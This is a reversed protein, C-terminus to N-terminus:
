ENNLPNDYFVSVETFYTDLKTPVETEIGVILWLKGDADTTGTIKENRNDVTFVNDEYATKGIEISGLYALDAGDSGLNGKDFSTTYGIYGLEAEDPTLTSVPETTVAGAKVYIKKADVVNSDSEVDFAVNMNIDLDYSVNPELNEIHVKMYMFLEGNLSRGTLRMAMDNYSGGAFTNPLTDHAVELGYKAQESEPYNSFEGVWEGDGNEFSFASFFDHRSTQPELDNDMCSFLLSSLGFVLFIKKIM